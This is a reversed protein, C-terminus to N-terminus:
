TLKTRQKQYSLLRESLVYDSNRLDSLREAGLLAMLLKLETQWRDILQITQDVGEQEISRLILGAIGVAKAGLVFSKIMDLPGRIGGSAIIDVRNLYDQAELLSCVTSQGWLSLANISHHPNRENEITVFNTGGSGSVDILKAGLNICKSITEQSFGFGVEKVMVDVDVAKVIKEINSSWHSFKRDGEAMAVEQASNVHIQLIDGNLRKIAEQAQSVSANANVNVFLLGKPNVERIVEFTDWLTGDKIASSVSGTAMALGTEKAVQALKRNIEKTKQSGGTMANIYFPVELKINKLTTDYSVLDVDISNLAHHIVHVEDFDNSIPNQLLALNVHDDKRNTMRLKGKM